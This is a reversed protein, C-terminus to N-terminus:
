KILNPLYENYIEILNGELLKINFYSILYNKKSNSYEVKLNLINKEEDLFDSITKTGMLYEEKLIELAMNSAEISSLNANMLFENIKLDKYENSVSLLLDDKLDELSLEAQLIQSYYKRINSDDIGQQFIPIKLTLSLNGKLTETGSDIRDADSYETIGVIDLNAKKTKKEKELLIEKNLIDNRLLKLSLNKELVNKEISELNINTDFSILNELNIAELNVIRKFSKKAVFLNQEASYLNAESVNLSSQSYKLDYLTSSQTEYKIKTEEFIKNISEYNKKNGDLTTEYHLVTLYGTIADLILDQVLIKFNIIENNYLIKSRKIELKDYGADYLNKSISLQYKDSFTDDKTTSLSTKKESSEYTGSITSSIEPKPNKTVQEKIVLTTLLQLQRETILIKGM